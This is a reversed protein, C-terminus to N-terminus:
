RVGWEWLGYLIKKDPLHKNEKLAIIIQGRHHAEHAIMYGLFAEPHPKFGKIKGTEFGKRLIESIAATSKKFNDLLIKKTIPHETEIKKLLAFLEPAAVKIWMFRVNHIHAFQQGVTRGKALSIDTLYEEKIGNLLYENVRHSIEWTEILAKM